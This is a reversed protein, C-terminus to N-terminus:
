KADLVPRVKLAGVTGGARALMQLSGLFSITEHETKRTSGEERSVDFHTVGHEAYLGIQKKLMGLRWAPYEALKPAM